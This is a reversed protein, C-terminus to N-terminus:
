SCRMVNVRLREEPLVENANVVWHEEHCTVVREWHTIKLNQEDYNGVRQSCDDVCVDQSIHSNQDLVEVLFSVGKLLFHVLHVCCHLVDLNWWINLWFDNTEQLKCLLHLFVLLLEVEEDLVDWGRELLLYKFENELVNNVLIVHELIFWFKNIQKKGLHLQLHEVRFFYNDSLSLYCIFKIKDRLSFALDINLIFKSFVCKDLNQCSTLVESLNRQYSVLSSCGRDWGFVIAVNTVNIGVSKLLDNCNKWFYLVFHLLVKNFILVLISAPLLKLEQINRIQAM